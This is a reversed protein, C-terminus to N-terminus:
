SAELGSNMMPVVAIANRQRASSSGSKTISPGERGEDVLFRSLFFFTTLTPGGRIFRKLDACAGICSCLMAEIDHM